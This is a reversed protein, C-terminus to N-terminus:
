DALLNVARHLTVNNATVHHAKFDLQLNVKTNGSQPEKTNQAIQLGNQLGRVANLM